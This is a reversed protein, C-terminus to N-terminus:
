GHNAEQFKFQVCAVAVGSPAFPFTSLFSVGPRYAIAPPLRPVVAQFGISFSKGPPFKACHGHSNLHRWFKNTPKGSIILRDYPCAIPNQLLWAWGTLRLVHARYRNLYM